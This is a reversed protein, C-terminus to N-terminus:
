TVGTLNVVLKREGSRIAHVRGLEASNRPGLNLLEAQSIPQIEGSMWSDIGPCFFLLTEESCRSPIRDETRAECEVSPLGRVSLRFADRTGFRPTNRFWGFKNIQQPIALRFFM